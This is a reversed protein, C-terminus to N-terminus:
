FFVSDLHALVSDDAEFGFSRVAASSATEEVDTNYEENCAVVTVLMAIISYLIAFKRTM